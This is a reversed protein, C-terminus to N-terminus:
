NTAEQTGGVSSRAWSGPMHESQSDLQHGRPEVWQAVGAPAFSGAKKKKLDESSSMNTSKM